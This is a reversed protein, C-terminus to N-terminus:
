AQSNESGEFEVIKEEFHIYVASKLNKANKKKFPLINNVL